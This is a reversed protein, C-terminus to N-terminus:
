LRELQMIRCFLRWFHSESGDPRFIRGVDVAEDFGDQGFETEAEPAMGLIPVQFIQGLKVGWGRASEENKFDVPLDDSRNSDLVSGVALSFQAPHIQFFFKAAAPVPLFHQAGREIEGAGSAVFCDEQLGDLLKLRRRREVLTEAKNQGVSAGLM